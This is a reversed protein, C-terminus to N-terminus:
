LNQTDLIQAPSLLSPMGQEGIYPVDGPISFCGSTIHIAWPQLLHPQFFANGVLQFMEIM